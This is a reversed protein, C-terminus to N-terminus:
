ESCFEKRIQRILISTNLNFADVPYTPKVADTYFLTTFHQLIDEDSAGKRIMDQIIAATERTVRESNSLYGEAEKHNVLGYHPLLISEIDLAHARAFSDLTLQYGVLYFPLYTNNGFYVGLTESGLLLKNEALYFGMSCKTHGPLHIATFTMDGCTVTDGDGVTIDVKLEDVLDDYETVGCTAAYKRDLDRMVARATPKQFIKDAYEGAIVTANPYRKLVYPAGLVHDYHSHSLLIYDLPREGLAERIKDAVQYGTFGFGTDYLISTQGDDILFASDGPLARVDTVTLQKM